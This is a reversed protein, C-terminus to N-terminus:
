IVHAAGAKLLAAAGYGEGSAIDQVRKGVVFRCAFAYRHVHEWFTIGGSDEPVMREGANDDLIQTSETTMDRGLSQSEDASRKMRSRGSAATLSRDTKWEFSSRVRDPLHGVYDVCVSDVDISDIMEFGVVSREHFYVEFPVFATIAVDALLSDEVAEVTGTLIPDLVNRLANERERQGIKYLKWV